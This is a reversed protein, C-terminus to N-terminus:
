YKYLFKKKPPKSTHNKRHYQFAYVVFDYLVQTKHAFQM